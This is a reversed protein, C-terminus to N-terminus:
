TKAESAIKEVGIAIAQRTIEKLTDDCYEKTKKHMACVDSLCDKHETTLCIDKHFLSM